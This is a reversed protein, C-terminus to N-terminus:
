KKKALRARIKSLFEPTIGLYAAINHLPAFELLTPNRRIFDLYREEATLSMNNIIRQHNSVLSNEILIRFFREFAPVKKFLMLQSERPLKLVHTDVLAEINLIAPKQSILSYMDAIWWDRCAFNLIHEVGEKDVSFAKLCGITVFSSYRCVEGEELIFQKKKIFGPELLSLFYDKEKNELQIHKCVNALILDTNV